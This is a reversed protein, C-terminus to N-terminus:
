RSSVEWRDFVEFMSKLFGHAMLMRHSKVDIVVIGKKAAISKVAVGTKRSRHAVTTGSADPRRSNLIRVPIGRTMAPEITSPHLVRAGFYALEAAEAFSHERIKMGGPVLRHDATLM